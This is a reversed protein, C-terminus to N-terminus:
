FCIRSEDPKEPDLFACQSHLAPALGWQHWPGLGPISPLTMHDTHLGACSVPLHPSLLEHGFSGQGARSDSSFSFPHPAWQTNKHHETFKIRKQRPCNVRWLPRPSKALQSFTQPSILAWKILNAAMVKLGYIEDKLVILIVAKFFEMQHHFLVIVLFVFVFNLIGGGPRLGPQSNPWADPGHSPGPGGWVWAETVSATTFGPFSGPARVWSSTLAFSTSPGESWRGQSSQRPNHTQSRWCPPLMTEIQGRRLTPATGKGNARM